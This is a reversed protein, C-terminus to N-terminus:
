ANPIQPTSAASWHSPSASWRRAASVAASSRGSRRMAAMAKLMRLKGRWSLLRSWLFPWLKGPAMLYLGEPVPLLQSGRAILSSRASPETEQIEAELGLDTILRLAAPKSRLLSDPGLELALDGEVMTQVVGGLRTASDLVTIAARPDHQRLRYAMALGGIGGGIIVIRRTPVAPPEVAM